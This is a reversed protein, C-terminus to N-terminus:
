SSSRAHAKLVQWAIGTLVKILTYIPLQRLFLGLEARTENDLEGASVLRGLNSNFIILGFRRFVPSKRYLAMGTLVAVRSILAAKSQKQHTYANNGHIRQVTLSERLMLGPSFAISCFKIYNDSTIRISEPMPLILALLKRRFSLGSTATPIYPVEGATVSKRIDWLGWVPQQTKPTTPLIVPVGSSDYQIMTLQDFVWDAESISAFAEVIRVVKDAKFLDDADLFCVIEGHSAKFGANFASAQGGNPKAIVPILGQYQGLLNLSDDTSGDDVVIIEIDRHAQALVSEVAASVFKGYNFNNIIVTVLPSDANM